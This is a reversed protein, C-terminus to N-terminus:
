GALPERCCASMSECSGRGLSNRDSVETPAEIIRLVAEIDYVEFLGGFSILVRPRMHKGAAEPTRKATLGAPQCGPLSNDWGRSREALIMSRCGRADNPATTKYVPPVAGFASKMLQLTYRKIRTYM